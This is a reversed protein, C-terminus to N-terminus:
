NDFLKALEAEDNLIDENTYTDTEDETEVDDVESDNTDDNDNIDSTEQTNSDDTVDTTTDEEPRPIDEHRMYIGQKILKKIKKEVVRKDITREKQVLRKNEKEIEKNRKAQKAKEKRETIISLWKNDADEYEKIIPETLTKMNVFAENGKEKRWIENFDAGEDGSMRSLPPLIQPAFLGRDEIIFCRGRKFNRLTIYDERTLLMAGLDGLSNELEVTNDVFHCVKISCQTKVVDLNMPTQNDMWVYLQHKRGKRLATIINLRIAQEQPTSEGTSVLFDGVERFLIIVPHKIKGQLKIRYINHIVYNIIFGWLEEPYYKLMISTVVNKNKLESELDISLPNTESSFLKHTSFSSLMNHVSSIGLKSVGPTREELQQADIIMNLVDPLTTNRTIKEHVKRWLATENKTLTNGLIAKLDSEQLGSIPITFPVCINPLEGPMNNCVPVLVKVPFDRAKTVQNKYSFQRDKWFPHNSPLSWYCEEMSGGSYLDIIKAGRLYAKEGLSKLTQSKGSGTRGYVILHGLMQPLLWRSNLFRMGLGLNAM